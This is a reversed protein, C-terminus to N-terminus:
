AIDIECVASFSRYCGVDSWNFNFHRYLIVCFEDKDGPENALWSTFHMPLDTFTKSTLVRWVFHTDNVRRGATLASRVALLV